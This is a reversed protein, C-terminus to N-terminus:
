MFLPFTICLNPLPSPIISFGFLPNQPLDSTSFLLFGSASRPSFPWLPSNIKEFSSRTLHVTPTQAPSRSGCLGQQRLSSAPSTDQDRKWGGKEWSPMGSTRSLQPWSVCSGAPSSEGKYLASCPFALNTLVSLDSVVCQKWSYPLKFEVSTSFNSLM